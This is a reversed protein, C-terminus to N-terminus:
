EKIMNKIESTSKGNRSVRKMEQVIFGLWNLVEILVQRWPWSKLETDNWFFSKFWTFIKGICKVLLVSIGKEHFVGCRPNACLSALEPEFIYKVFYALFLNFIDHFTVYFGYSHKLPIHLHLYKDYIIM